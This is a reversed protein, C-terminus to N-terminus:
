PRELACGVGRAPSRRPPPSDLLAKARPSAPDAVPPIGFIIGGAAPVRLTLSVPGVTWVSAGGVRGYNGELMGGVGAEGYGCGAVFNDKGSKADCGNVFPAYEGHFASVARAAGCGSRIASSAGKSGSASDVARM